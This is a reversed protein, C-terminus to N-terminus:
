PVEKNSSTFSQSDWQDATGNSPLPQGELAHSDTFQVPCPYSAATWGGSCSKPRSDLSLHIWSTAAMGLVTGQTVHKGLLDSRQTAFHCINFHVGDDLTFGLCDRKKLSGGYYGELTGSAPALINNDWGAGPTLDLGFQQNACHDRTTAINCPEPVTSRYPPDNYGHIVTLKTGDNVPALLTGTSPLNGQQASGSEGGPNNPFGSSPGGNGSQGPESPTVRFETTATTAGQTFTVTIVGRPTQDAIRFSMKISGSQDAQVTGGGGTVGPGGSQTVKVPRNPIFGHGDATTVTGRPGEAPTLTVSAQAQGSPTGGGTVTFLADGIEPGGTIPSISLLGPKADAPITMQLSFVGSADPPGSKASTLRTLQGNGYNQSIEVEVGDAYVQHIWGTGRVTVVTGV